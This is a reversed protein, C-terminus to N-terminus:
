HRGVKRQEKEEESWIKIAEERRRKRRKRIRV